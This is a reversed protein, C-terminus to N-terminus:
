RIWRRQYGFWELIFAAWALLILTFWAPPPGAPATESADSAVINAPRRLDSERASALNCAIEAVAPGDARAAVRWVGRRDLPGVAQRGEGGRLGRAPGDPPWLSLDRRPTTLEVVAGTAVSEVLDGRRGDLWTFANGVLIPFATRLPLDGPDDLAAALVLVKGEPRQFAVYLPEGTVLSVLVDARGKPTIARAEAIRANELKVFALLPSSRDQTGVIPSRIPPGIDWLDCSGDPDLVIARGPPIREPVHRHYVRILAGDGAPDDAIGKILALPQRVLPNAELVKEVYLDAFSDGSAIMAVGLPERAPLLAWAENDAPLADDPDLRARLRGGEGSVKELVRHWTSGPAITLPIHDIMVGDRELELRCRTPQDSYNGVEVLVQYGNLDRLSRRAQFRTIGVNGTRRGVIRLQVDSARAVGALGDDCGDTLVVVRPNRYSALLRRALEVAAVVRTPGDTPEVADVARDLVRRNSTLGCAV